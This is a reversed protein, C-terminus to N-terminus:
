GDDTGKRGPQFDPHQERALLDAALIRPAQVTAPIGAPETDTTIRQFPGTTEPDFSVKATIPTLGAAVVQQELHSKDTILNDVKGDVKSQVDAVNSRVDAVNSQVDAVNHQVATLKRVAVLSAVTPAVLSGLVVLLSSVDKGVSSLYVVAGIVAVLLITVAVVISVPVDGHRGNDPVTM